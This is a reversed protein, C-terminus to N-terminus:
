LICVDGKNSNIITVIESAYLTRKNCLEETLKLLLDKDKKFDEVVERYLKSVYDLVIQSLDSHKYEEFLYTDFYMTLLKKARYLDNSAGVTIYNCIVEEAARGGLLM